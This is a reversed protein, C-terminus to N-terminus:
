RRYQCLLSCLHGDSFDMSRGQEENKWETWALHVPICQFGDLFMWPIAIATSLAIVTYSIYCFATWEFIHSLFLCVSIKTLSIQVKYVLAFAYFRQLKTLVIWPCSCAQFTVFRTCMRSTTRQFSTGYVRALTM